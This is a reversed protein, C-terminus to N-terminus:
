QLRFEVPVTVSGPVAAGRELAPKFLWKYATKRASEDLLRFGSSRIVEVSTVNGSKDVKCRLVVKGQNGRKRALPPYSPLPNKRTMDEVPAHTEAHAAAAHYAKPMTRPMIPSNRINGKDNHKRLGPKRIGGKEKGSQTNNIHANETTANLAAKEPISINEDPQGVLQIDIMEHPPNAM